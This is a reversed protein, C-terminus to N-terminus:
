LPLLHDYRAGTGILADNDQGRITASDLRDAGHPETVPVLTSEVGVQVREHAACTLTQTHTHMHSRMRATADLTKLGPAWCTHRQLEHETQNRVTSRTGANLTHQTM